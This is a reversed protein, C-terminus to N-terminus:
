FLCYHICVHRLIQNRVVKVLQGNEVLALVLVLVLVSLYLLAHFRGTTNSNTTLEEWKKYINEQLRTSISRCRQLSWAVGLRRHRYSRRVHLSGVDDWLNEASPRLAGSSNGSSDDKELIWFMPSMCSGLCLRSRKKSITRSRKTQRRRRGSTTTSHQFCTAPLLVAYQIMGSSAHSSYKSYGHHQLVQISILRSTIQLGFTWAM